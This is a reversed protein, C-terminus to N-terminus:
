DQFKPVQFFENKYPIKQTQGSQRPGWDEGMFLGPRSAILVCVCAKRKRETFAVALALTVPSSCKLGSAALM